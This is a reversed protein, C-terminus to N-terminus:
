REGGLAAILADNEDPRGVTARLCDALGRQASVDRLVIGAALARKLAAAGDDFRILLFNAASPWVRRVGPARALSEALRERETVLLAVRASARELPVPELVALAAESCPLPLPYPAAIRGVFAAIEERAILAGVRAGALAHAKSLTRLVVVNDHRDILAAASDVGAFEIYAEDVVLLARGALGTALRELSDHYLAGTPNNPSCVVVLKTDADALALLEAPDLAFDREPDLALERYAAGQLEAGIRYMGFTPACAVVNDRGARCFGRLLLDIVEDSGRGIWLRREDVGYLAALRTRLPAPQPDPYRNLGFAAAEATWPSENADLRIAGQLGSRRASAYPRFAALDERARALMSM